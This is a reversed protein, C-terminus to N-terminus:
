QVRPLFWNNEDEVNSQHPYEGCIPSQDWGLAVVTLQSKLSDRRLDCCEAVPQLIARIRDRQKGCGAEYWLGGFPLADSILDVSRKNM